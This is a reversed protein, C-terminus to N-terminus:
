GEFQYWGPGSEFVEIKEFVPEVGDLGSRDINNLYASMLYPTKGHRSVPLDVYTVNVFDRDLMHLTGGCVGIGSCEVIKMTYPQEITNWQDTHKQDTYQHNVFSKGTFDQGWMETLSSGWLIFTMEEYRPKIEGLSISSYWGSFDGFNFETWEPIRGPSLKSRWLTVFSEFAGFAEAPTDQEYVRYFWDHKNM